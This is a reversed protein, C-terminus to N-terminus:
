DSRRRRGRCPAAHTAASGRDRRLCRWSAEPPSRARRSHAGRRVASRPPRWAGSAARHSRLWAPPAAGGRRVRPPTTAREGAMVSIRTLAIPRETGASRVTLYDAPTTGPLHDAHLEEPPSHPQDGNRNQDERHRRRVGLSAPSAAASALAAAPALAASAMATPSMTARVLALRMALVAPAPGDNEAAPEPPGRSRPPVIRRRGIPVIRIVLDHGLRRNVDLPLELDLRCRLSVPVVTFADRGVIGGNLAAWLGPQPGRRSVM